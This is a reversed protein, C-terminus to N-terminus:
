VHARGIKAEETMFTWQELSDGSLNWAKAQEQASKVIALKWKETHGEVDANSMSNNIRKIGDEVYYAMRDSMVKVNNAYNDFTNMDIGDFLTIKNDRAMTLMAKIVENNTSGARRMNDIESALQPFQTRLKGLAVDIDNKNLKSMEGNLDDTSSAVDSLVGEISKGNEQWQLAYNRLDQTWSRPIPSFNNLGYNALNIIGKNISNFWDPTLSEGSKQSQAFANGNKSISEDADRLAQMEERLAKLKQTADTITDVNTIFGSM